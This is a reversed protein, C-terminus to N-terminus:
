WGSGTAVTGSSITRSTRSVSADDVFNGKAVGFAGRPNIAIVRVTSGDNLGFYISSDLACYTLPIAYSSRVIFPNWVEKVDIM